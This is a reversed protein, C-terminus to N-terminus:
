TVVSSVAAHLPPIVKILEQYDVMMRWTDDPKRVPWVPSNFPSHAARIIRMKELEGITPMIGEHGRPLQYQKVAM